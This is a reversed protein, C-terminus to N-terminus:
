AYSDGVDRSTVEELNCLRYAIGDYPDSSNKGGYIIRKEVKGTRYKTGYYEFVLGKQLWTADYKALLYYVDQYDYPTKANTVIPEPLRRRAIRAKGLTSSTGSTSLNPVQKGYGNDVKARTTVIIDYSNQDIYIEMSRRINDLQSM